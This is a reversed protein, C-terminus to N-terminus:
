DHFETLFFDKLQNNKLSWVKLVMHKWYQKDTRYSVTDEINFHLAQGERSNGWIQIGTQVHGELIFRPLLPFQIGDITIGYM